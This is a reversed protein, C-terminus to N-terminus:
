GGPHAATYTVYVLAATAIVLTLTVLVLVWTARSLRSTGLHEARIRHEAVWVEMRDKPSVDGSRGSIRRWVNDM